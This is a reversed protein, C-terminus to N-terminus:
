ERRNRPTWRPLAIMAALLWVILLALGVQALRWYHRATSMSRRDERAVSIPQEEAASLYTDETVAPQAETQAPPEESGETPFAVAAGSASEETAAAAPQPAEASAAAPTATVASDTAQRDEAAAPTSEMVRLEAAAPAQEPEPTALAYPQPERATEMVAVDGAPESDGGWRSASFDGALVFVFLLAAVATAWRVARMQRAYWVSTEQLVVPELPTHAPESAPLTVTRYREIDGVMEATLAFSRSPAIEPLASLAQVIMRLEALTTKCQTCSALHAELVARETAELDEPADLYGALVEDAPHWEQGSGLASSRAPPASGDAGASRRRIHRTDDNM